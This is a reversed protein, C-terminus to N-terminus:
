PMPGGGVQPGPDDNHQQDPHDPEPDPIPDPQQDHEVNPTPNAAPTPTPDPDGGGHAVPLNNGFENPARGDTSQQPDGFIYHEPTGFLDRDASDSPVDGRQLGPRGAGGSPSTWRDAVSKAFGAVSGAKNLKSSSGLLTLRTSIGSYFFSAWGGTEVGTTLAEQSDGFFLGYNMGIFLNFPDTSLDTALGTDVDIQSLQAIGLVTQVSGGALNFVATLADLALITMEWAIVAEGLGGVAVVGLGATVLGSVINWKANSLGFHNAYATSSEEAWRNISSLADNAEQMAQYAADAMESQVLNYEATTL